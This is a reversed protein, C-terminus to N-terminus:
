RQSIILLVSALCKQVAGISRYGLWTLPSPSLILTQGAPRAERSPIDKGAPTRLNLDQGYCKAGKTLYPM